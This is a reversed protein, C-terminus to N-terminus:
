SLSEEFKAVDLVTEATWMYTKIRKQHWFHTRVIDEFHKMCYATHTNPFLDALSAILGKQRDSIIVQQNNLDGIVVRIKILFWVLNEYHEQDLIGFDIPLMGNNEDQTVASFLQGGFNGKLHCEKTSIIPSCHHVGNLASFYSM